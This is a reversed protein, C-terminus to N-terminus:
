WVVEWFKGWLASTELRAPQTQLTAMCTREFTVRVLKVAGGLAHFGAYDHPIATM